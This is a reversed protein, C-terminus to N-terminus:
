FTTLVGQELVRKADDVIAAATNLARTAETADTFDEPGTPYDLENRRRRLRGFGAFVGKFQATLAKELAVHGGEATPRLDQAALLAMAAHKAADYSVVYATAPESQLLTRSSQLQQGARAMLGEVGSGAGRLRSMKGTAILEEVVNAGASWPSM